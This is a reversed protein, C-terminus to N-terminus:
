CLATVTFAKTTGRVHLLSHLFKSLLVAMPLMAQINSGLYLHLHPSSLLHLLLASNIHSAYLSLSTMFTSCQTKSPQILMVQGDHIKKDRRVCPKIQCAKQPPSRGDDKDKDRKTKTFSPLRYLLSVSSSSLRIYSESM